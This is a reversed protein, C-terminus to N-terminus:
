EARDLLEAVQGRDVGRRALEARLRGYVTEKRRYLLKRPVSLVNAIQTWNLGQEFRMRIMLRDEVELSSLASKLRAEVKGVEAEAEQRLLDSEANDTDAVSRLSEEGVFVRSFRDPLRAALEDLEGDSVAERLNTRIIQAAEQLSYGDRHTLRELLVAREGMRRAARSPRWKGWKHNRYDLGLRTIVVTLFTKLSSRGEFKGLLAYDDQILKEHVFSAFDEATEHFFGLRGAVSRIIKRIADLESRYLQEGM